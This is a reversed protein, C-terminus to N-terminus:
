RSPATGSAKSKRGNNALLAKVIRRFVRLVGNSGKEAKRSRSRGNVEALLAGPGTGPGYEMRLYRSLEALQRPNTREEVVAKGYREWM